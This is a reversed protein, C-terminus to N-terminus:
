KKKNLVTCNELPHPDKVLSSFFDESVWDVNLLMRFLSCLKWDAVNLSIKKGLRPFNYVTCWWLKIRFKLYVAHFVTYSKKEKYM